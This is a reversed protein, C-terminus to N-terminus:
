TGATGTRAATYREPPASDSFVGFEHMKAVFDVASDRGTNQPVHEITAKADELTMVNV